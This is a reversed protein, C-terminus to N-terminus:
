INYNIRVQLYHRFHEPDLYSFLPGVYEPSYAASIVFHESINSHVSFNLKMGYVIHDKRASSIVYPPTASSGVSYLPFDSPFGHYEDNCHNCRAWELITDVGDFYQIERYALYSSYDNRKNYGVVGLVAVSWNQRPKWVGGVELRIQQHKRFNTKTILTTDDVSINQITAYNNIYSLYSLESVLGFSKSGQTTFGFSFKPASEINKSGKLPYGFSLSISNVNKEEGETQSFVNLALLLMVIISIPKM